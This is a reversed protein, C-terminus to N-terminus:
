GRPEQFNACADRMNPKLFSYDVYGGFLPIGHWNRELWKLDLSTVNYLPNCPVIRCSGYDVDVVPEKIIVVMSGDKFAQFNVVSCRNMAVVSYTIGCPSVYILLYICTQVTSVSNTALNHIVIFSSINLRDVIRRDIKTLHWWQYRRTYQIGDALQARVQHLVRFQGKIPIPPHKNDTCSYGILEM